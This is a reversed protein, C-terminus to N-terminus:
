NWKSVAELLVFLHPGRSLLMYFLSSGHNVLDEANPRHGMMMMMTLEPLFCEKWGPSHPSFSFYTALQVPPGSFQDVKIKQGGCDVITLEKSITM